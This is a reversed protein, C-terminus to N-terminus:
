QTTEPLQVPLVIGEAAVERPDAVGGGCSAVGGGLIVLLLLMALATKGRRRIAGVGFLLLCAFAVAKPRWSAGPASHPALSATSASTTTVTLTATQSGPGSITLPSTTGFTLTPPDVAGAPSSTVAASLSVSGTFGGSPAVTITSTNGTTAGPSVTVKTGSVAIAPVPVPNVTVPEQNSGSSYYTDGSYTVVLTDNGVALSNAPIAITASGSALQAPSSSFGGGSLTITGTPAPVGNGTTVIIAVNLAENVTITPAYSQFTVQSPTMLTLTTTATGSDYNSDGLYTATVVNQGSTLASQFTYTAAGNVLPIQGAGGFLAMVSVTGTPTPNSKGGSIAVNVTVPLNTVGSPGTVTMVPPLTGSGKMNVSGMSSNTDYYQDGSYNATLTTTGVPLTNAPITFTASGSVVNAPPTTVGNYSLTMTGTAPPLGNLIAASVNVTVTVPQNTPTFGSPSIVLLLASM